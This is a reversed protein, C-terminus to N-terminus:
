KLNNEIQKNLSLMAIIIRECQVFRIDNDNFKYEGNSHTVNLFYVESRHMSTLVYMYTYRM